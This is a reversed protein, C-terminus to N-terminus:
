PPWLGGILFFIFATVMYSLGIRKHDTSTLWALMGRPEPASAPPEVAVPDVVATM